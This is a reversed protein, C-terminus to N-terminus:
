KLASISDFFGRWFGVTLVSMSQDSIFFFVIM